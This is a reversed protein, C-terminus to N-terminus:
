FAVRAICNVKQIIMSWGDVIWLISLKFTLHCCIWSLVGSGGL